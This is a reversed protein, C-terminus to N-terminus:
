ADGGEDDELTEGLEDVWQIRQYDFRDEAIANFKVIDFYPSLDFDRPTLLTPHRMRFLGTYEPSEHGFLRRLVRWGSPRPADFGSQSVPPVIPFRVKAFLQGLLSSCIVETPTASGFHLATRRFRRPILSFPLLYRALDVLNRLDYRWGVAAIAEDLIVKLDDPRLRHPRCVRINFDIYKCLPSVIVGEMQAEVILHSADSGFRQLAREREEGGRRLLEDGIYLAAHSWSSQSLYKIAASIRQDGEVLIVDGKRVHRLLAAPDNWGRREYYALPQSLAEVLRDVLWRRIGLGAGGRSDQGAPKSASKELTRCWFREGKCGPPARGSDSRTESGAGERREARGRAGQLRAQSAGARQLLPPGPLKKRPM